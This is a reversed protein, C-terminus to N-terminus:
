KVNLFRIQGIMEEATTTAHLNMLARVWGGITARYQEAFAIGAHEVGTANLRPYDKDHTCLVRGMETALRLHNPDDEGLLDLDRVTIADIGKRALQEAVEVDVNEDM